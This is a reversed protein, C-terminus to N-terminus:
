WGAVRFTAVCGVLRGGVTRDDEIPRKPFAAEATVRGDDAAFDIQIGFGVDDNAHHWTPESKGLLLHLDKKRHVV